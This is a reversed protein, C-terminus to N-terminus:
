CYSRLWRSGDKAIVDSASRSGDKAILDSGDLATRLLLIQAM